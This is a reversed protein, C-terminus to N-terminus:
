SCSPLPQKTAAPASCLQPEGGAEVGAYLSVTAADTVLFPVRKETSSGKTLSSEPISVDFRGGDPNEIRLVLKAVPKEGTNRVKLNINQGAYCFKQVDLHVANCDVGQLDGQWNMIMGGLAVAFAMLLVTAILPSMARRNMRM